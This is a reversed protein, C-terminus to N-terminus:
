IKKSSSRKKIRPPCASQLMSSGHNVSLWSAKILDEVVCLTFDKSSAPYSSRESTCKCCCVVFRTFSVNLLIINIIFPVTIFTSTQFFYHHKENLWFNRLKRFPFVHYPCEQSLNRFVQFNVVKRWACWEFWFEQLFILHSSFEQYFYKSCKFGNVLPITKKERGMVHRTELLRQIGIIALDMIELIM